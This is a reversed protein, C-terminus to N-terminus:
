IGEQTEPTPETIKDVMRNIAQFFGSDAAEEGFPEMIDTLTGGNKFHDDLRKGAESLSINLCKAVYSRAFIWPQSGMKSLDLGEESFQCMMNTTIPRAHVLQGNLTFTRNM